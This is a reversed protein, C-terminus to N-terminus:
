KAMRGYYEDISKICATRLTNLKVIDECLKGKITKDLNPNALQEEIHWIKLHTICLRDIIEGLTYELM